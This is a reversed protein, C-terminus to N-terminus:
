SQIEQEIERDMDVKQVPNGCWYNVKAVRSTQIYVQCSWALVFM